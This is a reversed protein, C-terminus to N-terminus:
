ENVADVNANKKLLANVIDKHGKEAALILATDGNSKFSGFLMSPQQM